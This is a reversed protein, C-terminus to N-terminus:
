CVELAEYVNRQQCVLEGDYEWFIPQINNDHVIELKHNYGLNEKNRSRGLWPGDESDAM